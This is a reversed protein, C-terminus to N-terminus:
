DGARAIEVGARFAGPALLRLLREFEDIQGEVADVSVGAPAYIALLLSEVGDEVRAHTTPGQIVSTLLRGEADFMAMDGPKCREEAGDYRTYREEGTTADLRVPLSSAGADHIAALLGTALESMFM